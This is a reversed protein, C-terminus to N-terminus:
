IYLEKHSSKDELGCPVRPYPIAFVGVQSGVVLNLTIRPTM